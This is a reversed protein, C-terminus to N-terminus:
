RQRAAARHAVALEQAQAGALLEAQRAPERAVPRELELLVLRAAAAHHEVAREALVPLLQAPAEPRWLLHRGSGVPRTIAWQHSLFIDAKKQWSSRM